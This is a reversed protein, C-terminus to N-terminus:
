REDLLAVYYLCVILGLRSVHRALDPHSSRDFVRLSLFLIHPKSQDVPFRFLLSGDWYSEARRTDRSSVNSSVSSESGKDLRGRFMLRIKGALLGKWKRCYGM